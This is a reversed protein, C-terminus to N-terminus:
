RELQRADEDQEDIFAALIEASLEDIRRDVHARERAAV